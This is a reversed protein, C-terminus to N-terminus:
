GFSDAVQGILLPMVAGGMIGTCLIGALVGPHELVSNMALSIIIPWMVSAFLGMCPFAVQAVSAPGFLALSLCTLAGISFAGLVRRSDFFKLLIM